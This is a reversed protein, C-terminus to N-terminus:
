LLPRSIRTQSPHKSPHATRASNDCRCANSCAFVVSCPLCLLVASAPSSSHGCFFFRGSCHSIAGPSCCCCHCRHCCHRCCCHRCQAARGRIAQEPLRGSCPTTHPHFQRAPRPNGQRLRVVAVAVAVAVGYICIIRTATPWRGNSVPWVCSDIRAQSCQGM